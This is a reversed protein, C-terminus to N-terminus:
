WQRVRYYRQSVSASDDLLPLLHGTGRLAPLSTWNTAGLSNKYELAYLKGSYSLVEAAFRNGTRSTSKMEPPPPRQGFLTLTHAEGAAVMVINSLTRSIDCQGDFNEGWAAATGDALVAVTHFAGGTIAVAPPLNTPVQLQGHSNAGWGVIKGDSRIALSHYGGAGVAIVNNLNWPVTAQGAYAGTDDMNGGWAFVTGNAALALSHTGGGAIAVINSLGAPPHAQGYDNDGWGVVTGNQLLALSHWLGAAVALVNTLGSPVSIQNYTNDGWAAVTGDARIALSHYGGAAVGIAPGLNPPVSCQGAGNNGWAYISGDRRLALNHYEGAAIEVADRTSVTVAAQGYYSSGSARLPMVTLVAPKSFSAGNPNSIRMVYNGAQEPVVSAIAYTANTAGPIEVGDLLWQYSLPPVGTGAASLLLSDGGFNTRSSPNTTIVPALNGTAFTVESVWGADQGAAVSVDKSYTWDLTYVGAPVCITQQDWDVEGSIRVQNTFQTGTCTFTLYDFNAESSVKWWFSLCGPGTVRTRLHTSGNDPISGTQAAPSLNHMVATQGQWPAATDNTWSLSSNGLAVDLPVSVSNCVLAALYSRPQANVAGFSGGLLVESSNWFMLATVPGDAGAPRQLFSEGSGDPRLRAINNFNVGNVSTFDGGILLRGDAQLAMARIGLSPNSIPGTVFNTDRSGDPLLRAVHYVSVGNLSRFLGGIVIKLDPQQLIAYVTGNAGAMGQLFAPDQVGNGSLRAVGSRSLGNVSSFSGGVLIQGDSQLALSFVPGSFAAGAFTIDVSGNSNLRVVNTRSSVAFSGGLLIKGDPQLLMSNISGGGLNIGNQFTADIAGGSDVRVLGVAPVGNFSTFQGAVLIKGAAPVAIGTVPGNAGSLGAMFSTDTSGDANLRGIGTGAFSNVLVKGDAQTVVCSVNGTFLVTGNAFLSDVTGSSDLRALRNRLVGGVASFTGGAVIQADPELVICNVTGNVGGNGTYFSGDVAGSPSLRVLAPGGAGNVNSFAGGLLISGDPQITLAMVAGNAGTGPNFSSDLSGNANLRAVRNVGAGNVVTFNGGIVIKGDQQIAVANVPTVTAAFSEDVSGDANLRAVGIHSSGNVTTFSGGIVVKGDTQLAVANVTGNAGAVGYLFGQDITGDANLRLIGRRGASTFSGGALVKGDAQVALANVQSPLPLPFTNDWSGDSNLRILGYNSFLGDPSFNGGVLIKGDLQVAVARGNNYAWIPGNTFTLDTDGTPLLRAVGSRSAGNVATFDGAILLNGNGLLTAAYVPRGLTSGANFSLDVSGPGLQGLAGNAALLLLVVPLHLSKM